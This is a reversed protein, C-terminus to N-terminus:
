DNIVPLSPTPPEFGRAGVMKKEFPGFSQAIAASHPCQQEPLPKGRTWTRVAFALQRPGMADVISAQASELRRAFGSASLDLTADAALLAVSLFAISGAVAIAKWEPSQM